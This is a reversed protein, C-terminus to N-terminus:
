ILRTESVAFREFDFLALFPLASTVGGVICFTLTTLPRYSKHSGLDSMPTGWFDNKFIRLVPNVGTVDGNSVIAPIDDHVFEGNLSNSYTLAGVSAVLVYIAFENDCLSRWSKVNTGRVPIPRRRM